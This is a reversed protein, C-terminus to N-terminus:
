ARTWIGLSYLSQTSVSNFIMTTEQFKGFGSSEFSALQLTAIIDVIKNEQPNYISSNLFPFVEFVTTKTFPIGSLDFIAAGYKERISLIDIQENEIFVLKVIYSNALIPKSVTAITLPDGVVAREFIQFNVASPIKNVAYSGETNTRGYATVRFEVFGDDRVIEQPEPFIYLGDFAPAGNDFPM